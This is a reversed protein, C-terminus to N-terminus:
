PFINKIKTRYQKNMLDPRIMGNFYFFVIIRKRGKRFGRVDSQLNPLL